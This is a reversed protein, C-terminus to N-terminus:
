WVRHYVGVGSLCYRIRQSSGRGGIGQLVTSVQGPHLLPQAMGVDGGGLEVGLAVAFGGYAPTYPALEDEKSRYRNRHVNTIGYTHKAPGEFLIPSTM